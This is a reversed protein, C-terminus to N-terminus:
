DTCNNASVKCCYSVPKTGPSGQIWSNNTLSQMQTINLLLTTILYTCLRRLLPSLPIPGGVKLVPSLGGGWKRNYYLFSTGFSAWFQMIKLAFNIKKKQPCAWLGGISSPVAGGWVGGRWDGWYKDGVKLRVRVGSPIHTLYVVNICVHSYNWASGCTHYWVAYNHIM